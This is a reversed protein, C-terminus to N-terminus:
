ARFVKAPEVTLAARAAAISAITAMAVSTVGLWLPFAPPTYIWPIFARALDMAPYAVAVGLAAGLLAAAVAQAWVIRAVFFTSAGLAKLTAFEEINEVTAAYTTQSIILVGVLCGLLGATLLAGGAGTQLLWYRRARSAFEGRTWVDVEPIRHRLAKQVAKVNQGPALKLLLFQYHNGIWPVNLAADDFRGFVYPSGLFTGFGTVAKALSVRRGSIESSAPVGRLGLADLDSVDMYATNPPLTRTVPYEGGIGPDAGIFSITKRSGDPRQWMVQASIIRHASVLGPMSAALGRYDMTLPTAFDFSPVGRAMIWLSADTAEIVRAASRLFGALLSGQFLMLFTSFSIGAVALAFRLRDHLLNKLALRM